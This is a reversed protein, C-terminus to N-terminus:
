KEVFFENFMEEDMPYIYNEQWSNCYGLQLPHNYHANNEELTILLHLPCAM